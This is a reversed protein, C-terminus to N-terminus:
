QIVVFFGPSYTGAQQITALGEERVWIVQLQVRNQSSRQGLFVGMNRLHVQDKFM